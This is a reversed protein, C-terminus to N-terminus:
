AASDCDEKGPSRNIAADQFVESNYRADPTDCSPDTMHLNRLKGAPAELPAGQLPERRYKAEWQASTVQNM